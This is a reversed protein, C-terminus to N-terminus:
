GAGAPIRHLHAHPDFAELGPLLVAIAHHGRVVGAGGVAVRADERSLEELGLQGLDDDGLGGAAHADLARAAAPLPQDALACLQGHAGREVHAADLDPERGGRAVAALLGPGEAAADHLHALGPAGEATHIEVEAAAVERRAAPERAARAARHDGARRHGSGDPAEPAPVAAAAEASVAAVALGRHAARAPEGLIAAVARERAHGLPGHDDAVEGAVAANDDPGAVGVEGALGCVSGAPVALVIVGAAAGAGMVPRRRSAASPATARAAMATPTTARSDPARAGSSRSVSLARNSTRPLSPTSPRRMTPMSAFVNPSRLSRQGNGRENCPRRTLRRWAAPARVIM